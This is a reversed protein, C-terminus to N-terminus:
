FGADVSIFLRITMFFKPVRLRFLLLPDRMHVERLNIQVEDLLGDVHFTSLDNCVSLHESM